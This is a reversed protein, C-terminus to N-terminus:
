RPTTRQKSGPQGAQERLWALKAGYLAQTEPTTSLALAQDLHLTAAEAHGLAWAARALWFQVEANAPQRRRERQFHQRAETWQGQAAAAQGLRLFHLPPHPELRALRGQLAQAADDLGQARLTGILNGLVKADDGAQALLTEFVRQAQPLLGRHRYVVGLTNLAPGFAPDQQLAARAHWYADDLQGRVLAEAARNNMFMALVTPWGLRQTRQPTLDESPLFDVVLTQGTTGVGRRTAPMALQVHGSAFLLAGQQTWQEEVQVQLFEFPMGLAQAAVATVLVLSLCNGRQATWAEEASRTRTSDYELRMQDNPFLRRLLERRPDPAALVEPGLTALAAQLRPGPQAAATADPLTVPPTFASDQLLTALAPGTPPATTSCASLTLATWLAVQGALARRAWGRGKHGLTGMGMAQPRTSLNANHQM